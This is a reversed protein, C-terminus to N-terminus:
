DFIDTMLTLGSQTDYEFIHEHKFSKFIGAIMEDTFHYPFHYETIKSSLKQRIGFHTAEWTVTEGHEMLGSTRGAIAKENTQATSLTHLDVSRSLNFVIEAPAKIPTHLRIVPM